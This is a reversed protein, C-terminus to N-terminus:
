TQLALDLSNLVLLPALTTVLAQTLTPVVLPSDRGDTPLSFRSTSAKTELPALVKNGDSSLMAALLTLKFLLLEPLLSPLITLLILGSDSPADEPM